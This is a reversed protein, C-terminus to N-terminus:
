AFSIQEYYILHGGLLGLQNRSLATRYATPLKLITSQSLPVNISLHDIFLKTDSDQQYAIYWTHKVLLPQLTFCNSICQIHTSPTITPQIIKSCM